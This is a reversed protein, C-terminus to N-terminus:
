PRRASVFPVIPWGEKTLRVDGWRSDRKTAKHWGGCYNCAYAEMTPGVEPCTEFRRKRLCSRQEHTEKTMSISGRSQPPNDKVVVEARLREEHIAAARIDSVCCAIQAEKMGAQRMERVAPIINAFFLPMVKEM